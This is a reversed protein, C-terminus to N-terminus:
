SIKLLHTEVSQLKCDFSQVDIYFANYSKISLKMEQTRIRRRKQSSKKMTSTTKHFGRLNRIRNTYAKTREDFYTRSKLDKINEKRNWENYIQLMIYTPLLIKYYSAQMFVKIIIAPELLWAYQLNYINNM